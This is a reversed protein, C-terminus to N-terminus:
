FAKQVEYTKEMRMGHQKPSALKILREALPRNMSIPKTESSYNRTTYIVLKMYKGDAPKEIRTVVGVIM